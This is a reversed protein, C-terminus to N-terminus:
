VPTRVRRREAGRKLSFLACVPAPAVARVKGGLLRLLVTCSPLLGHADCALAGEGTVERTGTVLRFAGRPLACAAGAARLVEDCAVGGGARSGAFRLVRTRGDLDRLLLQSVM